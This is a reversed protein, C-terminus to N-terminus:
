TNDSRDTPLYSRERGAITYEATAAATPEDLTNRHGRLAQSSDRL